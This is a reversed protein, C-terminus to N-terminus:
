NDIHLLFYSSTIILIQPPYFHSITLSFYKKYPLEHSIDFAFTHIIYSVSLYFTFKPYM